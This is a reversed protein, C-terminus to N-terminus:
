TSIFQNAGLAYESKSGIKQRSLRKLKIFMMLPWVNVIVLIWYYIKKLFRPGPQASIKQNRGSERAYHSGWLVHSQSVDISSFDGRQNIELVNSIRDALEKPSHQFNELAMVQYDLNNAELFRLLNSYRKSWKRIRRSRIRFNRLKKRKAARREDADLWRSPSRFIVLVYVSSFSSGQITASTLTRKLASLEKSSDVIVTTEPVLEGLNGTLRTLNDLYSRHSDDSNLIVSSWVPCKAGLQGCSCIEHKVFKGTKQEAIERKIPDLLNDIEGLAIANSHSALVLGVVTTGSVDM